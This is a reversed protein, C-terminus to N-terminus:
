ISPTTRWRPAPRTSRGGDAPAGGGIQNPPRRRSYFLLCLTCRGLAHRRAYRWHRGHQMQAHHVPQPGQLQRPGQRLNHRREWRRRRRRARRQGRRHRPRRRRRRRGRDGVKVPRHQIPGVVGPRRWEHPQTGEEDRQEGEGDQRKRQQEPATAAPFRAHRPLPSSAGAAWRALLPHRGLIGKRRRRTLVLHVRPWARM